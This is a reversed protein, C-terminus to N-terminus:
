WLRTRISEESMRESAEPTLGEIQDALVKSFPELGLEDPDPWAERQWLGSRILAKPCQFFVREVAIEWVARAAKDSAAYRERLSTDILISARGWLRLTEERGPVFFILAVNPNEVVNWASDVRNNGTRDPMHLLSRNLVQVFGPRDGRPSADCNGEQDATALVLFPSVRIFAQCHRDLHDLEKRAARFSPKGYWAELQERSELRTM